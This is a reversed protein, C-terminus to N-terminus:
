EAGLKVTDTEGDLRLTLWPVVLLTLATVTVGDPPNVPLTVRVLEIRGFPTVAFKPVLGTVPAPVIAKVAVGRAVTPAVTTVMVPVAPAKISVVVRLRVTTALGMRVDIENDGDDTM